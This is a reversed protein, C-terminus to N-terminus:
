CRNINIAVKDLLGDMCYASQNIIKLKVEVLKYFRTYGLFAAAETLNM